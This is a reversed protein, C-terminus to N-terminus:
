PCPHGYWWQHEAFTIQQTPGPGASHPNLSGDVRFSASVTGKDEMVLNPGVWRGDFRLKPPNHLSSGVSRKYLYLTFAENNMDKWVVEHAGGGILVAYTNGHPACIWGSGSIATSPLVHSRSNKPQFYVFIRYTGGPGQIDAVGQWFPLWRVHGGVTFIWPNTIAMVAIYLLGCLVVLLALQILCGAPTRHPRLANPTRM